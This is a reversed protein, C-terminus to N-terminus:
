MEAEKSRACCVLDVTDEKLEKRLRKLIRYAKENCFVIAEEMEDLLDEM